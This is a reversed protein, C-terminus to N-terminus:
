AIPNSIDIWGNDISISAGQWTDITVLQTKNINNDLIVEIKYTGKPYLEEKDDYDDWKEPYQVYQKGGLEYTKNIILENYTYFVKVNVSHNRSDQNHIGFISFPPGAMFYPFYDIIEKIALLVVISVIIIVITKKRM